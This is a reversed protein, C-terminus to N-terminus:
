KSDEGTKYKRCGNDFKKSTVDGIQLLNKREFILFYVKILYKNWLLHNKNGHWHQLSARNKKSSSMSREFEPVKACNAKAPFLWASTVCLIARPSSTSPGAMERSVTTSVSTMPTPVREPTWRNSTSQVKATIDTM